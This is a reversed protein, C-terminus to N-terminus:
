LDDRSFLANGSSGPALEAIRCLTATLLGGASEPLPRDPKTERLVSAVVSVMLVAKEMKPFPWKRRNTQGGINQWTAQHELFLM